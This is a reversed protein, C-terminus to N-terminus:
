FFTFFKRLTKLEESNEFECLLMRDNILNFGEVLRMYIKKLKMNLLLPRIKVIVLITFKCHNVILFDDYNLILLSQYNIFGCAWFSLINFCHIIIILVILSLAYYLPKHSGSENFASHVIEASILLLSKNKRDNSEM